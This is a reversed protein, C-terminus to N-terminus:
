FAIVKNHKQLRRVELMSSIVSQMHSNKKMKKLFNGQLRKIQDKNLIKYTLNLMQENKHENATLPQFIFNNPPLIRRLPCDGGKFSAVTLISVSSM